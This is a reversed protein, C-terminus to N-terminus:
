RAPRTQLRETKLAWDGTRQAQGLSACGVVGM